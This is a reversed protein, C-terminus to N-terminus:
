TPKRYVTPNEGHQEMKQYLPEINSCWFRRDERVRIYLIDLDVTYNVIGARMASVDKMEEDVELPSREPELPIHQLYGIDFHHSRTGQNPPFVQRQRFKAENPDIIDQM